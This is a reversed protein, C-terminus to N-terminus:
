EANSTTPEPASEAPKAVPVRAWLREVAEAPAWGTRREVTAKEDGQGKIKVDVLFTARVWRHGEDDPQEDRLILDAGEHVTFKVKHHAGNAYRVAVQKATVVGRDLVVEQRFKVALSLALVVFVAGVVASSVKVWPKRCFVYLLVLLSLVVYSVLAAGLLEDLNLYFYWFFVLTALESIEGASEKDKALAKAQRLNAAIGDDRPLLTQARRYNVVAKGTRGLRYYTNGLNFFIQANHYGKSLIGEYEAAALQFQASAKASNKNAAAEEAAEYFRNADTFRKIAQDKTLTSASATGALVAALLSAGHVLSMSM